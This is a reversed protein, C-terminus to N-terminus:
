QKKKVMNDRLKMTITKKINDRLKMTITKKKKMNDRLGKNFKDTDFMDFLKNYIDHLKDNVYKSETNAILKYDIIIDKIENGNNNKLTENFKKNHLDLNKALLAKMDHLIEDNFIRINSDELYNSNAYRCAFINIADNLNVLIEESEKSDKIKELNESYSELSKKVIDILSWADRYVNKPNQIQMEDDKM